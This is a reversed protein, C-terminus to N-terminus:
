RFTHLLDPKASHRTQAIEKAKTSSYIRGLAERVGM